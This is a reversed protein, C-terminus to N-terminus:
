LSADDDVEEWAECALVWVWVWAWV